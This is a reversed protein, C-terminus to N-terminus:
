GSRALYDPNSIALLAHTRARLLDRLEADRGPEISGERLARCLRARLEPLTAEPLNLFRALLAREEARAKAGLELERGAIALANAVM